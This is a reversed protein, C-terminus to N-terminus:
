IKRYEGFRKLKFGGNFSTSFTKPQLVQSVKEIESIKEVSSFVRDRRFEMQPLPSSKDAMRLGYSLAALADCHGLAETRNFDTRKDNYQGTELSVTLFKCDPHILIGDNAFMVQMNNIGAQWDDKRPIRIPYKHLKELDIQMQGQADAWRSTISRGNVSHKDEMLRIEAVIQDTPTNAGFIREDRVLIKNNLFDYTYLIAATKDRSGGFDISIQLNAYEPIEFDRVHRDPSYTPVIVLSADRVIEALYERRWAASGEGGCLRKAKEIQEPTIQPNDYITYRFVSDTLLTKQLIETHIMHAPDSSPSTIHVLKGGSRLLQPAIVSEIAYRYDDTHVFGGEETIILAANGGRNSDVHARELTGLRLSSQGIDWRYASKQRHILGEPADAMIPALNDQVIDQVQKLSGSLIRVISRPNKICFEIALAVGFYSKGLQRSCLVLVEDSTSSSVKQHMEKQTAHLKWFLDGSRWLFSKIDGKTLQNEEASTQM